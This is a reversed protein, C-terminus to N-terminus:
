TICIHMRKELTTGKEGKKKKEKEEFKIMQIITREFIIQMNLPRHPESGRV